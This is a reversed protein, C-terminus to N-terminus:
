VEFVERKLPRQYDAAGCFIPERHDGLNMLHYIAGPHDVRLKRAM